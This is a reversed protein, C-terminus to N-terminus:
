QNGPKAAEKPYLLVVLCVGAFVCVFGIIKYIDMGVNWFFWDYFVSFVVTSYYFPSILRAPAYKTALTYFIQFFLGLVGIGSLLLLGEQTFMNHLSGGEFPLALGAIISSLLFYYFLTRGSPDTYHSFRLSLTSISGTLGSLLACITGVAFFNGGPRIILIIGLFALGIGWWTKHHIKIGKWLYAVIPVFIPMTNFLVSADSLDITKLSYFFLCISTFGAITRLLQLRISGMKLFAGLSPEKQTFGLWGFFLILAVFNRAFIMQMMTLQSYSFKTLASLSSTFFSGLLICTIAFGLHTHLVKGSHSPQM